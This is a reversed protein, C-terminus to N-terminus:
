SFVQEQMTRKLQAETGPAKSLPYTMFGPAGALESRLACQLPQQFTLCHIM